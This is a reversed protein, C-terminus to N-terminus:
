PTAARRIRPNFFDAARSMLEVTADVSLPEIVLSNTEHLRVLSGSRVFIAPPSNVEVIAALVEKTITELQINTVM